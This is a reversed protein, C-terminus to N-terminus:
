ACMALYLSATCERDHASHQTISDTCVGNYMEHLLSHMMDTIFGHCKIIVM